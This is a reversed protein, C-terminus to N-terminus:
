KRASGKPLPLIKMMQTTIYSVADFKSALVAGVDEVSEKESPKDEKFFNHDVILSPLLGGVEELVEIFSDTDISKGDMSKAANQVHFFVKIEGTTPERLTVKKGEELVESLDVEITKFYKKM